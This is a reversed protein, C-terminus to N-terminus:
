DKGTCLNGNKKLKRFDGAMASVKSGMKKDDRERTQSILIKVKDIIM